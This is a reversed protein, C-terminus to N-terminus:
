LRSEPPPEKGGDTRLAKIVKEIEREFIANDHAWGKFDAAIRSRIQQAKGSSYEDSFLYGDLDLPILALVKQQRDKMLEREKQFAKDIEHDVWWKEALSSQSCCLLVKDWHRIGRDIEEYIDDGPNVQKEDLWCRIGRGQLTDHVRRAFAKDAYSYSIFCSYFDNRSGIPPPQDFENKLTALLLQYNHESYPNDSLDIYYKAALWNPAATEWDDQKLIPIFKRQNQKLYLESTIIDGEYRVGGKTRQSRESYGPTCIILVFDCTRISSEMFDPLKDGPVVNWQDLRVDIGDLRLRTALAKVWQRHEDSEWSYSIFATPFKDM